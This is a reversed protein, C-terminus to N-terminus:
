PGTTPDAAARFPPSIRGDARIFRYRLFVRNTSGVDFPLNFTAPSTPPTAAGLIAGLVQWPGNYFNVAQTTPSGIQILLAGGVERAWDDTGQTTIFSVSVKNQAPNLEATIETGSAVTTELPATDKISLGAALRCLNCKLFWQQGTLYQTQGLKDLIPVAGAYAKWGLRTDDDLVTSWRNVMNNLNSRTTVQLPTSPNVPVSRARVYMGFRNRSFTQGGISGSAATVLQSRFKM